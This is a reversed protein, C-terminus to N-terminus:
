GGDGDHKAEAGDAVPVNVISPVTVSPVVFEPRVFQHMWSVPVTVAVTSVSPDPFYVKEPRGSPV